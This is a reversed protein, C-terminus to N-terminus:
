GKILHNFKEKLIELREHDGTSEAKRIEQILVLREKKQKEKKLRDLCDRHMRQRDGTLAETDVTLSTIKQLLGPDSFSRMVNSVTIEQGEETLKFIRSMIQRVDTDEFDELTIASQTIAILSEENLILKLLTVEASSIQSANHVPRTPIDASKVNIDPGALKKLELLLAEEEILLVAGLKKLYGFRMVANEFKNITPLMLSTIKARGEITKTDYRNMLQELKFDFFSQAQKIKQSFSEVGFKRIFSDPDEGAALAAVKVNMGEEILLDLSRVMASEGAQDADYLMVVNTTFRRMLRIQDGTLATGLSAVVNGVGHQFPIIFDMYGEVVIIFDEKLVADKALQLGYLHQGKTYLLTEPSNIYKAQEEKKITRAGFGVCGGRVDFIPFIIRGRFRDYYGEHNERPIILGAKEMLSLSVNKSKLFRILGDWEDLAFGLKFKKVIELNIGRNKLYDRAEKAASEKSTILNQHFFLAALENVAYLEQKLNKTGTPATDTEPISVGVKQALMRLAEPFELREQQMVFSIVNGGVGCGFCHFIQKDPNVVFSPTKENHFPCNAKFNRGAKKLSVYGGITQVIDVRELIQSIIEEPIFGM